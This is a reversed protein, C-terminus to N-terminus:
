TTPTRRNLSTKVVIPLMSSAGFGCAAQDLTLTAPSALASGAMALQGRERRSKPIEHSSSRRETLRGARAAPPATGQEARALPM